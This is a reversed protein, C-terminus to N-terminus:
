RASHAQRDRAAARREGRTRVNRAGDYVDALQVGRHRCRGSPLRGLRPGSVCGCRIAAPGVVSSERAVGLGSLHLVYDYQDFPMADIPPGGPDWRSYKISEVAFGPFDRSLEGRLQELTAAHPDATSLVYATWAAAVVLGLVALAFVARVVKRQM